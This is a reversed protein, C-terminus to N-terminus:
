PIDEAPATFYALRREEASAATLPVVLTRDLFHNFEECATEPVLACSHCAAMNLSMPGQARTETCVPDASCWQAGAIARRVVPELSGPKGMRVLGGMTGEADGAATYILVGAMPAEPNSSVFLRERLSASSYGCEFTLRTILLHAFTHLLVLRPTVDRERLHRGERLAGFRAALIAVRSQVDQRGEWGALRQEDFELFLGEGYVVYAPLWSARRRPPNLWLSDKRQALTRADETFVRSFGAFARTERLKEVLTIRSFFSQLDAAYASRQPARIVLEEDTRRERLARFEARRLEEETAGPESGAPPDVLVEDQGRLIVGIARAIDADSYPRLPEESRRRLQTPTTEEALLRIITSYGPEDLLNLLREPIADSDRPLYIASRVDAFYVNGAGRLTGRLPQGCPEQAGPGLWPKRGDCTFREAQDLERTLTTDGDPDAQTIGLLSREAGCDCKVQQAGLSASGTAVLRLTRACAPGASRHVWERWPFDRIHGQACMAIFPVQALFRRHRGERECERCQIRGRETLGVETLARCGSCFHWQPFRLVPVTLAMNPPPANRWGFPRRHDPPLRFHGVRLMRELRWEQLEYEDTDVRGAGGPERRFWHDLGATMVSTGDQLIMM